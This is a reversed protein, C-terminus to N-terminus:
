RAWHRSPHHGHLALKPTCGHRVVDLRQVVIAALNAVHAEFDRPRSRICLTCVDPGQTARVMPWVSHVVDETEAGVVVDPKVSTCDHKIGREHDDLDRRLAHQAGQTHVWRMLDIQIMYQM